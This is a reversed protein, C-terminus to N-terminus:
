EKVGAKKLEAKCWKVDEKNPSDSIILKLMRIYGKKSPTLDVSM